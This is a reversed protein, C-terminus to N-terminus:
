SDISLLHRTPRNTGDGEATLGDEPRRCPRYLQEVANKSHRIKVVQLHMTTIHGLKYELLM